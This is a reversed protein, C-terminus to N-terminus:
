TAKRRAGASTFGICGIRLAEARQEPAADRRAPQADGRATSGFVELRAIGYRRCVARLQEDDVALAPVTM